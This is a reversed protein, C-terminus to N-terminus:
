TLEAILATALNEVVADNLLCPFNPIRRYCQTPTPTFLCQSGPIDLDTEPDVIADGGSLVWDSSGVVVSGAYDSGTESDFFRYSDQGSYSCSLTSNQLRIDLIRQLDSPDSIAMHPLPPSESTINRAEIDSPESDADDPTPFRAEYAATNYTIWGGGMHVQAPSGRRRDARTLAALWTATYSRDLIKCLRSPEKLLTVIFGSRFPLNVSLDYATIGRGECGHLVKQFPSTCGPPWEGRMNGAAELTLIIYPKVGLSAIVHEIQLARLDALAEPDKPCAEAELHPLTVPPHESLFRTLSLWMSQAVLRGMHCHEARCTYSYSYFDAPLEDVVTTGVQAATNNLIYRRAAGFIHVDEQCAAAWEAKSLPQDAVTLLASKAKDLNWTNEAARFRTVSVATGYAGTHSLYSGGGLDLPFDVARVTTHTHGGAILHLLPEGPRLFDTVTTNMLSAYLEQDPNFGIHSLLIRVVPLEASTQSISPPFCYAATDEMAARVSASYNGDIEFLLSATHGSEALNALTLSYLCVTLLPRLSTSRGEPYFHTIRARHWGRRLADLSRDDKIALNGALMSLRPYFRHIANIVVAGDNFDHNGPTWVSPSWIKMLNAPMQKSKPDEQFAVDYESGSMLDGTFLRLSAGSPCEKNLVAKIMSAQTVNFGVCGRNKKNNPPAEVRAHFDSWHCISLAGKGSVLNLTTKLPLTVKTVEVDMGTRQPPLVRNPPSDSIYTYKKVRRVSLISQQITPILVMLIIVCLTICYCSRSQITM